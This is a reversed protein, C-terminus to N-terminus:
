GLTSEHGLQRTQLEIGSLGVRATVQRLLLGRRQEEIRALGHIHMDVCVQRFHAKTTAAVVKVPGVALMAVGADRRANRHRLKQGIALLLANELAVGVKLDARGLRLEGFFVEVQVLAVDFLAM